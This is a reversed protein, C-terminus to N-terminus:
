LWLYVQQLQICALHINNSNKSLLESPKKTYESYRTGGDMCGKGWGMTAVPYLHVIAISSSLVTTNSCLLSVSCSWHVVSNSAMIEM